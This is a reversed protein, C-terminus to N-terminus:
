VATIDQIRKWRRIDVFYLIGQVTIVIENGNLSVKMGEALVDSTAKLDVLVSIDKEDTGEIEV